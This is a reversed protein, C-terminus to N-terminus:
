EASVTEELLASEDSIAVNLSGSMSVPGQLVSYARANLSEVAESQLGDFEGGLGTVRATGLAGPGVTMNRSWSGRWSDSSSRWAPIVIDRLYAWYSETQDIALTGRGPLYLHWVSNVLIESSFLRSRESPSSMKIGIGAPLGRSDTLSTVLIQSDKITPEWLETIKNPHPRSISEGDNTFMISDAVVVSYSLNSMAADSVALPSLKAQGVFPNFYFGAAFLATGFVLGLLLSIVYKM